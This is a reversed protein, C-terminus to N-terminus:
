AIKRASIVEFMSSAAPNENGQVWKGGMRGPSINGLNGPTFLLERNEPLIEKRASQQMM